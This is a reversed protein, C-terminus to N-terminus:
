FFFSNGLEMLKDTFERNSLVIADDPNLEKELLLDDKILWQITSNQNQCDLNLHFCKMTVHINDHDSQSYFGKLVIGTNTREELIFPKLLQIRTNNCWDTTLDITQKLRKTASYISTQNEIHWVEFIATADAGHTEQELNGQLSSLALYRSNCCFTAHPLLTMRMRSKLTYLLCGNELSYIEVTPYSKDYEDSYRNFLCYEAITAAYKLDDSIAIVVVSNSSYISSLLVGDLKLSFFRIKHQTIAPPALLINKKIYASLSIILKWEETDPGLRYYFSALITGRCDSYSYHWQSSEMANWTKTFPAMDYVNCPMDKSFSSINQYIKLTEMSLIALCLENERDLFVAYGNCKLECHYSITRNQVKFVICGGESDTAKEDHSSLTIYQGDSCISLVHSNCNTTDFYKSVCISIMDPEPSDEMHVRSDQLNEFVTASEERLTEDNLATFKRVTLTSTVEGTTHESQSVYCLWKKNSSIDMLCITGVDFKSLNLQEQPLSDNKTLSANEM